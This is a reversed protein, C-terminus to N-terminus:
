IHVNQPSVSVCQRGERNKEVVAEDHVLLKDNRLPKANCLLIERDLYVLYM